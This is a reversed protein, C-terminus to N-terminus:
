AGVDVYELYGPRELERGQWRVRADFGGTYGRGHGFHLPTALTADLELLTRGGDRVTWRFREPVDMPRGLPDTLTRPPVDPAPTFDVDDYARSSGDLSRIWAGRRLTGAITRTDVLLLQTTPDLNVIQYTFLTLPLKWRPPIPARRRVSHLGFSAAHEYTCLGAVAQREGRHRIEGEYTSLLSLHDYFPSRTFWSVRDSVELRLDLEVDAYRARLDVRPYRGRLELDDGFRVLSGDAAAEVDRGIRYGRYHHPTAAATGSHLTALARADGDVLHDNDFARIGTAGLFSMVMFFRHPDPLDPIMVGYHTWGYRRGGVHPRLREPRDFPRRSASRWRDLRSAVQHLAPTLLRIPAATPAEPPATPTTM